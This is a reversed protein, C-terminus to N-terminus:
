LDEPLRLLFIRHILNPWFGVARIQNIVGLFNPVRCNPSKLLFGRAALMKFFFEICM